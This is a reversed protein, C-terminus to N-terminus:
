EPLVSDDGADGSVSSAAVLTEYHVRGARGGSGATRKLWGAHAIGQAGADEAMEATDAGYITAADVNESYVLSLPKQSVEYAAASSVAIAASGDAQRVTANTADAIATFVYDNAGIRLFDGVEYSTFDASSAGTVAGTDAVAATGVTAISDKMGWLSM